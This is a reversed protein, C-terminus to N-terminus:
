HFLFFIFNVESQSPLLRRQLWHLVDSQFSSGWLVPDIAMEM